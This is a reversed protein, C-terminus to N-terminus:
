FNLVEGLGSVNYINYIDFFDHVPFMSFSPGLCIESWIM